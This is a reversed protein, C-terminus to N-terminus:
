PLPVHEINVDLLSLDLFLTDHLKKFIKDQPLRWLRLVKDGFAESHVRWAVWRITQSENDGAGGDDWAWDVTIPQTTCTNGQTEITLFNSAEGGTDFNNPSYGKFSAEHASITAWADLDDINPEAALSSKILHVTSTGVGAIEPLRHRVFAYMINALAFRSFM